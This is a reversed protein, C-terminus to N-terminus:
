SCGRIALLSTLSKLVYSFCCMRIKMDGSSESCRQKSHRSDEDSDPTSLQDSPLSRLSLLPPPPPAPLLCSPTLAKCCGFANLNDIVRM